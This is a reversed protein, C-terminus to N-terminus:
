GGSARSRRPARAASRTQSRSSGSRRAMRRSGCSPRAPAQPGPRPRNSRTARTQMSSRGSGSAGAESRQRPGVSVTQKADSTDGMSMGTGALGRHEAARVIADALPHSAGAEVAAALRLVENEDGGAAAYVSQVVPKGATLTGTKDFAFTDATALTELHAGGKIIVGLRAARAMACLVAAPTGIALACPSAAVLFAMARYFAEGFGLKGMLPLLVTLLLTVALVLPVYFREIRATFLETPSREAQADEVLRMIRALTSEGAPKTTRLVLPRDGNISGALVAEGPGREVPIPEGTVLSQDILSSGHVVVSDLPVRAFPRLSIHSGTEIEELPRTHETGDQDIVRASDPAMEALANVANKARGLAAHEGAAGLGFLFLLFAGEEYHGLAASGAAAVFMLVDVNVRWKKIDALAEPGTETSALIASAALLALRAWDPGGAWHVTAGALLLVGAISTLLLDRQGTILGLASEARSRLRHAASIPAVPSTRPEIRADELRLRFGTGALAATTQHLPCRGRDFNLRLEQAPWHAQADIKHRHLRRNIRRAGPPGGLNSIPIRLTAREGIGQKLEDESRRQIWRMVCRDCAEPEPGCGAPMRLRLVPLSVQSGPSSSPTTSM